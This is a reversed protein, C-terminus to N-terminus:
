RGIDDGVRKGEEMKEEFEQKDKVAQQFTRLRLLATGWHGATM